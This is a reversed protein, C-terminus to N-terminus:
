RIVEDARLLISSPVTIGLTKATKLNVVLQFKTPREVPLDGPKAGGLIKAVLVALREWGSTLEPGYAIVGGALAFERTMLTAPLRHKLTLRALRASQGHTMPSPLIIVAQPRGRLAAFAKDLDDPKRVELVQLKIDLSRAVSRVAQLHTAGPGPDWLVSVRSLNPVMANLLDFWKGAFEPADLFVGTVNGGPRAYSRVYGEAIPDTTFDVAVIPITRTATYAARLSPASFSFMVDVKLRVLAAAAEPFQSPDNHASRYEFSVNKGEIWGRDALTRRFVMLFAELSPDDTASSFSLIGVRPLKSQGCAQGTWGLATLVAVTFLLVAAVRTKLNRGAHAYHRAHTTM